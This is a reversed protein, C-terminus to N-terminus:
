DIQEETGALMARQQRLACSATGFPLICTKVNSKVPVENHKFTSAPFSKQKKERFFNFVVCGSTSMDKDSSCSCRYFSVSFDGKKKNVTIDQHWIWTADQMTPITLSEWWPEVVQISKWALCLFDMLYIQFPARHVTILDQLGSSRKAAFVRECSCM